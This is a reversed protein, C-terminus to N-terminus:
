KLRALWAMFGHAGRNGPLPAIVAEPWVSKRIHTNCLTKFAEGQQLVFQPLSDTVRLLVQLVSGRQKRLSRVVAKGRTLLTKNSDNVKPILLGIQEGAKNQVQLQASGEPCIISVEEGTHLKLAAEQHDSLDSVEIDLKQAAM